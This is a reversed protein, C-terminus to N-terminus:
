GKMKKMLERGEHWKLREEMKDCPLSTELQLRGEQAEGVCNIRNRLLVSPVSARGRGGGTGCIM